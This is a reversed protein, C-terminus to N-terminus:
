WNPVHTRIPRHIIAVQRVVKRDPPRVRRGARIPMRPPRALDDHREPSAEADADFWALPVRHDVAPGASALVAPARRRVVGAVPGDALPPGPCSTESTPRPGAQPGGVPGGSGDCAPVGPRRTPFRPPDPGARGCGSDPDQRVGRRLPFPGHLTAPTRELYSEAKSDPSLGAAACALRRSLRAGTTEDGITNTEQCHAIRHQYASRQSEAAIRQWEPAFPKSLPLVGMGPSTRVMAM